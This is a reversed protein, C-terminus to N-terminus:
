VVHLEERLARKIGVDDFANGHVARRGGDLRMVVHAAQGVRQVQFQDLRQAFQEFVFDAGHAAQQAQGVRHQLAM